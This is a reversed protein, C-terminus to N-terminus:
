DRLVFIAVGLPPPQLVEEFLTEVDVVGGQLHVVGRGLHDFEGVLLIRGLAELVGVSAFGLRVLIDRDFRRRAFVAGGRRPLVRGEHQEGDRGGQRRADRQRQQPGGHGRAVVRRLGAECSVHDDVVGLGDLHCLDHAIPGLAVVHPKEGRVDGEAPLGLDADHL